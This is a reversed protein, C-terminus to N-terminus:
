GSRGSDFMFAYKPNRAWSSTAGKGAFGAYKYHNYRQHWPSQSGHNPSSNAEGAYPSPLQRYTTVRATNPGHVAAPTAPAPAPGGGHSLPARLDVKTHYPELLVPRAKGGSFPLQGTSRRPASQPRGSGGGTSRAGQVGGQVGGQGQQPRAGGGTSAAVRRRASSSSGFLLAAEEAAERQQQKRLQQPSLPRPGGPASRQPVKLHRLTRADPTRGVAVDALLQAVDRSSPVGEADYNHWSFQTVLQRELPTLPRRPGDLSEQLPPASPEDYGGSVVVTTDRPDASFFDAYIRNYKPNHAWSTKAGHGGFGYYKYHRYDQHFPRVGGEGYGVRSPPVAYTQVRAVRWDGAGREPVAEWVPTGSEMHAAVLSPVTYCPRGTKTTMNDFLSAGAGVIGLDQGEGGGRRASGPRQPSSRSPSASASAASVASPRGGPPASSPRRPATTTTAPDADLTSGDWPPPALRPSDRYAARAQPSATILFRSHDNFPRHFHQYVGRSGDLQQDSEPITTNPHYPVPKERIPFRHADLKDIYSMNGPEVRCIADVYIRGAM